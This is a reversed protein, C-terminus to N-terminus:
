VARIRDIDSKDNRWQRPTFGTFRKFQKTLNSHDLGLKYAIMKVPLDTFELLEKAKEIRVMTVFSHITEKYILKFCIKLKNENTGVQRALLHITYHV